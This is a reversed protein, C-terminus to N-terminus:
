GDHHLTIYHLTICDHLTIYHLTIYINHLTINEFKIELKLKINEINDLSNIMTIYGNNISRKWLSRKVTRQPTESRIDVLPCVMSTLLM